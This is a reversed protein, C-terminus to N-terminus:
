QFNGRANTFKQECKELCIEKNSHAIQRATNCVYHKHHPICVTCEIVYLAVKNVVMNITQHDPLSATLM